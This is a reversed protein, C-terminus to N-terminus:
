TYGILTFFTLYTFYACHSSHSSIFIIEADAPADCWPTLFEQRKLEQHVEMVYGNSGEGYLMLLNELSILWMEHQMLTATSIRKGLVEVAGIKKRTGRLEMMRERKEM